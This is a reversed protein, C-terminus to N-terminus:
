LLYTNIRGNVSEDPNVTYNSNRAAAGFPLANGVEAYSGRIKAFSLLGNAINDNVLCMPWVPQLIFSLIM